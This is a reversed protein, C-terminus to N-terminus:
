YGRSLPCQRRCGEAGRRPQGVAVDKANRPSKSRARVKGTFVDRVLAEQRTDGTRPFTCLLASLPATAEAPRSNQLDIACRACAMRVCRFVGPRGGARIEFPASGRTLEAGVRKMMMKLLGPSVIDLVWRQFSLPAALDRAFTRVEEPDLYVMLGETIVLVRKATADVRAFLERRAPADSLDLAVRELRCHPIEQGLIDQKHAILEPLDVEIWQLSPPLALRYPRADLGAALNLVADAGNAIEQTILADFLVTRMVFAWENRDQKMAAAIQAGREGALRRAFPDRFLADARDNERARYMAVWRATDSVNRIMPEVTMVLLHCFLAM